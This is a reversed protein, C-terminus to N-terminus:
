PHVGDIQRVLFFFGLPNRPNQPNNEVLRTPSPLQVYMHCTNAMEYPAAQFLDRFGWFGGLFDRALNARRVM